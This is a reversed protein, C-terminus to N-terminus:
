NGSAWLQRESQEFTRTMMIANSGGSRPGKGHGNRGKGYGGQILKEQIPAESGMSAGDADGSVSGGSQNTGARKRRNELTDQSGIHDDLEILSRMRTLPGKRSGFKNGSSSNASYALTGSTALSAGLPM